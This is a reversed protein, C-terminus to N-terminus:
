TPEPPATTKYGSGSGGPPYSPLPVGDALKRAAELVACGIAWTGGLWECGRDGLWTGSEDKCSGTWELARRVCEQYAEDGGGATQYARQYTGYYYSEYVGGSATAPLLTIASLIAGVLARALRHRPHTRRHLLPASM